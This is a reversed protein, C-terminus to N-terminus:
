LALRAIPRPARGAIVQAAFAHEGDGLRSVGAVVFGDGAAAVDAWGDGGFVRVPAAVACGEEPADALAVPPPADEPDASPPDPEPAAVRPSAPDAPEAVSPDASSSPDPAPDPGCGVLLLVALWARGSM